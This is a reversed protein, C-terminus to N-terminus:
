KQEGLEENDRLGKGDPFFVFTVYNPQLIKQSVATPEAPFFFFFSSNQALGPDTYLSDSGDRRM